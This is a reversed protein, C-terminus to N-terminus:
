FRFYIFSSYTSSVTAMICLAFLGILVFPEVYRTCVLSFKKYKKGYKRSEAVKMLIVQLIGSLLVALIITIIFRHNAVSYTQIPITGEPAGFFMVKLYHLGNKLGDARFFVWGVLVALLAYVHNLVK